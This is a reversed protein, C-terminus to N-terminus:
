WRAMHRFHIVIGYNAWRMFVYVQQGIVKYWIIDDTNTYDTTLNYQKVTLNKDAHEHCFKSLQLSYIM